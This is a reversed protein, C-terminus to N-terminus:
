WGSHKFKHVRLHQYTPKSTVGKQKSIHLVSSYFMQKGLNMPTKVHPPTYTHNKFQHSTEFTYNCQM